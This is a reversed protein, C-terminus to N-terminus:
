SESGVTIQPIFVPRPPGENPCRGARHGDPGDDGYRKVIWQDGCVLCFCRILM